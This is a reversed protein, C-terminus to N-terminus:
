QLQEKRIQKWDAVDKLSMLNVINEKNNDLYEIIELENQMLVM